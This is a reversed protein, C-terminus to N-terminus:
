HAESDGVLLHLGARTAEEEVSHAELPIEVLNKLFITTLLNDRYRAIRGLQRRKCEPLADMADELLNQCEHTHGPRKRSVIHPLPEGM